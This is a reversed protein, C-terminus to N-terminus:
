EDDAGSQRCNVATEMANAFWGLMTGVGVEDPSHGDAATVTHGDFTRCFEEAWAMADATNHLDKM